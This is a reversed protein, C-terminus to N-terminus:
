MMRLVSSLTMVAKGNTQTVLARSLMSSTYATKHLMIKIINM